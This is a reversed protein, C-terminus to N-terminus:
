VPAGPTAGLQRQYHSQLGPSGYPRLVATDLAHFTMQAICVGATLRLPHRTLNKLELTITGDFGPDVLGAAEVLLGHRAWTSKGKVEGAIHAPLTIREITSALLFEGAGVVTDSIYMRQPEGDRFAPMRVFSNSLRLDLSCPQYQVPEPQPRVRVEESDVLLRITRDSLMM